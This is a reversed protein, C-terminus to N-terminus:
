RRLCVAELLDKSIKIIEIGKIQRKGKIKMNIIKETEIMNPPYRNNKIFFLRIIEGDFIDGNLQFYYKNNKILSRKEFFIECTNRYKWSIETFKFFNNTYNENLIKLEPSINHRIRNRDFDLEFNSEDDMYKINNITVYNIIDQLNLKLMPKAYYNDIPLMGGLGYIGTGRTLRYIINEVIDNSHHATAIKNFQNENLIENFFKYRRLRATEELSMKYIKSKEKIYEKKSFFPIKYDNSIKEVFIQEEDSINRLKHNFHVVGLHYNLLKSLKSMIHLLVMSDKGGSVAILIKDNKNFIKYKKILNFVNKEIKELLM